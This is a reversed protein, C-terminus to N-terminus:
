TGASPEGGHGMCSRVFSGGALLVAPLGLLALPAALAVLVIVALVVFPLPVWAWVLRPLVVLRTRNANHM